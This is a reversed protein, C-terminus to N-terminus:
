RPLYTYLCVVICLAHEVWNQIICDHQTGGTSLLLDIARLSIIHLLLQAEIHTLTASSPWYNCRFFTVSFQLSVGGALVIAAFHKKKHTSIVGFHPLIKPVPLENKFFNPDLQAISPQRPSHSM